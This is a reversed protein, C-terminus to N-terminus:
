GLEGNHHTKEAEARGLVERQRGGGARQHRGALRQVPEVVALEHGLDAADEYGPANERNHM